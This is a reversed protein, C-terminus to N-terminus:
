IKKLLFFNSVFTFKFRQKIKLAMKNENKASRKRIM